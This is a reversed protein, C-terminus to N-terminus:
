REDGRVEDRPARVPERDQDADRHQRQREERHGGPHVLSVQERQEAQRPDQDREGPSPPDGVRDGPDRREEVHVDHEGRHVRPVGPDGVPQADAFGHSREPPDRDDRRHVGRHQHPGDRLQPRGRPAPEGRLADTARDVVPHRGVRRRVPRGRRVPRSGAGAAIGGAGAAIAIVGSSVGATGAGAVTPAGATASGAASGSGACGRRRRGAQYSRGDSDSRPMTPQNRARTLSVGIRGSRDCWSARSPRPRRSRRSM